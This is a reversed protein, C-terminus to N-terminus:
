DRPAPDHFAATATTTVTGQDDEAWMRVLIRHSDSSELQAHGTLTRHRYDISSYRCEVNALLPGEGVLEEALDVLWALKLLGHVPLDTLGNAEAIETDYHIEYFDGSAGAYQVLTRTTPVLQRSVARPSPASV